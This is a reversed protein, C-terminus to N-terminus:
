YSGTHIITMELDSGGQEFQAQPQPQGELVIPFPLVIKGGWYDNQLTAGNYWSRPIADGEPDTFLKPLAKVWKYPMPLIVDLLLDCAAYPQLDTRRGGHVNFGYFTVKYLREKDQKDIVTRVGTRYAEGIYRPQPEIGTIAFLGEVGDEDEIDNAMSGRILFGYAETYSM